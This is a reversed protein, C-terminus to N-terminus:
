VGGGKRALHENVLESLDRAVELALHLVLRLEDGDRLALVRVVPREAERPLHRLPLHREVLEASEGARARLDSEPLRAIEVALLLGDLALLAPEEDVRLPIREEVEADAAEEGSAVVRRVHRPAFVGELPQRRM